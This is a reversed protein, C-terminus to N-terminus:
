AAVRADKALVGQRAVRTMAKRGELVNGIGQLSSRVSHSAVLALNYQFLAQYEHLLLKHWHLWGQWDWIFMGPTRSRVATSTNRVNQVKSSSETCKWIMSAHESMSVFAVVVIHFYWSQKVFIQIAHVPQRASSRAEQSYACQAYCPLFYVQVNLTFLADCCRYAEWVAQM